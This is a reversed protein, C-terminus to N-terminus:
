SVSVKESVSLVNIREKDTGSNFLSDGLGDLYKQYDDLALKQAFLSDQRSARLGLM